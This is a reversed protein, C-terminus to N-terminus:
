AGGPIGPVGPQPAAEEAPRQRIRPGEGFNVNFNLYAGRVGFRRTMSQLVRGDDTRITWGMTDFPDLVRLTVSARDGRLKRRLALSLMSMSSM